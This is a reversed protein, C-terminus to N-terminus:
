SSKSATSQGFFYGIVILFANNLLEPTVRGVFAAVIMTVTLGLLLIAGMISAVSERELFSRWVKAKREYRDMEAITAQETVDDRVRGVEELRESLEASHKQLKALAAEMAHKTSSDPIDEAIRSLEEVQANTKLDRLRELIAEKRELLVALFDNAFDLAEPALSIRLNKGDRNARSRREDTLGQRYSAAVADIQEITEELEKESMGAISKLGLGLQELRLEYVQKREQQLKHLRRMEDVAEPGYGL